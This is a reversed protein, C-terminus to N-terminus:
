RSSESGSADKTWNGRKGGSSLRTEEARSEKKTLSQRLLMVKISLPMKRGMVKRFIREIPTELHKSM